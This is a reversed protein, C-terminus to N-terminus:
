QMVLGERAVGQFRNSLVSGVVVRPKFSLELGILSSLITTWGM